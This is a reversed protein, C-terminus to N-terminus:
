IRAADHKSQMNSWKASSLQLNGELSMAPIISLATRGGVQVKPAIDFGVPALSEAGM